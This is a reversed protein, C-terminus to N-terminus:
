TTQTKRFPNWKKFKLARAEIFHWSLLAIPTTILISYCIMAGDTPSLFHYLTQQVPFSYIYLGYSLDGIKGVDNLYKWSSLGVSLTCLPIGFYCVWGFTNTGISAILAAGSILAILGLRKINEFRLAALVSGSVFYTGLSTFYETNLLRLSIKNAEPYYLRIFLLVLLALVLLITTIKKQKRVFFLSAVLFYMTVEYKITWLSGNMVSPAVNQTFVGDIGSNGWFITLGRPLYELTSKASFYAIEPTEYVWWGLLLCLLFMTTLAPYLRLFRKWFYDGLSKSRELSQFILYGSIVFFGNVGLYSLMTQGGSLRHLWDTHGNGTLAFSHSLIVSLAFLLRLFDFNNKRHGPIVPHTAASTAGTSM